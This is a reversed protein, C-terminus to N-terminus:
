IFSSSFGFKHLVGFILSHRVIDFANVMEINIIMCKDKNARSTHIEEQVIQYQGCDIKGRYIRGQNESIVKNLLKKLTNAIIKSLIKHHPM